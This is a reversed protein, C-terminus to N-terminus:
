LIFILDWEESPEDDEGIEIKWDCNVIYSQCPKDKVKKLDKRIKKAM